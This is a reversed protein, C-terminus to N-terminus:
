RPRIEALFTKPTVIPIGVFEKLSLLLKDGTVIYEARSTMAAALIYNDSTDAVAQPISAPAAFLLSKKTVAVIIQKPTVNSAQMFAHLKQYELVNQFEQFTASIFCPTSDGQKIVTEIKELHKRFVLASILVNTDFVVRM